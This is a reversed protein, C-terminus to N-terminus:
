KACANEAQPYFALYRQYLYNPEKSNSQLLFGIGWQHGVSMPFSFVAYGLQEETRLQDYFWPQIIQGLLASRAMGAIETYGTPVYVAALAADSSSGVREM